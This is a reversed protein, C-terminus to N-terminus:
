WLKRVNHKFSVAPKIRTAADHGPGVGPEGVADNTAIRSLSKAPAHHDGNSGSGYEGVTLNSVVHGPRATRTDPADSASAANM